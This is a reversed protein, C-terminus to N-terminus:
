IIKSGEVLIIEERFVFYGTVPFLKVLLLVPNEIWIEQSCNCIEQRCHLCTSPSKLPRSTFNRLNKKSREVMVILDDAFIEARVDRQEYTIGTLNKTHKIKLALIEVSLLFIYPSIVDGQPVGQELLIKKSLHGGLLITAERKNFFLRVWKRISDGFGFIKLTSDIFNHTISDFAKQFDVLLILAEKQKKNCFDIMNIINIIVSGINNESLYAKQEIGILRSLVPKIRRTITASALKYFISLLSIPRYNGPLLPNKEGKRLLRIIAERCMSSLLEEGYMENLANTVLKRLDPWFERLWNVTFGDVGPASAGKMFKTLTETLETESMLGEM